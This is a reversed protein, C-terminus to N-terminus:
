PREAPVLSGLTALLEAPLYPKSIFADCGAREAAERQAALVGATMVVIRPRPARSALAPILDLGSGDALQVDLLCLDIPISQDAVIRRAAALTAVEHLISEKLRVDSARALIARLLVRNMEEDEAVLLSLPRRDIMDLPGAPDPGRGGTVAM